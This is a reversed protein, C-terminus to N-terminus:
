TRELAYFRPHGHGIVKWRATIADLAPLFHTDTPQTEASVSTPFHFSLAVVPSGDGGQRMPLGDLKPCGIVETRVAYSQRWRDAAHDNPVLNLQVDARDGGGSYSAHDPNDIYSQGIGHELFAFPGYGMRRAKKIDGYSAVLARHGDFHPAPYAPVPKPAPRGEAEIGLTAAHRVLDPDTLFSGRVDTPLADWVPALHDIFHREYALVDLM